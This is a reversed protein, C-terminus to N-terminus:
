PAPEFAYIPPVDGDCQGPTLLCAPPVDAPLCQLVMTAVQPGRTLSQNPGAAVREAIVTAAHTCAIASDFDGVRAVVPAPPAGVVAHFTLAILVYSTM